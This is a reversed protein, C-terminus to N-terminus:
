FIFHHCVYKSFVIHLHSVPQLGYFDYGYIWDKKDEPPFIQNELNGAFFKKRHLSDRSDGSMIGLRQMCYGINVDESGDDAQQCKRDDHFGIEAYRRLAEKSLVYGPGGSMYGKPVIVKFRCGFYLPMDTSYPYLMYRLNEMVAYTDDDAKLFWDYDDMHYRYVYQFAQKTKAWLFDRGEPVPLAVVDSLGDELKSSMFIIKNCRQGWTKNVHIAKTRMTAPSTLIWCLIRVEKKLFEAITTHRHEPQKSDLVLLDRINVLMKKEENSELNVSDLHIRDM